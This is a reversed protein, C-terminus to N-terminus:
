HGCFQVSFHKGLLLGFNAKHKELLLAFAADQREVILAFDAMIAATTGPINIDPFPAEDSCAEFSFASKAVQLRYPKNRLYSQYVHQIATAATHPPLYPTFQLRRAGTPLDATAVATQTAWFCLAM